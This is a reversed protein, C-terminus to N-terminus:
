SRWPAPNYAKVSREGTRHPSHGLAPHTPAKTGVGHSRRGKAPTAATHFTAKMLRQAQHTTAPMTPPPPRTASMDHDTGAVTPHHSAPQSTATDKHTHRHGSFRGIRQRTTNTLLRGHGVTGSAAPPRTRASPSTVANSTVAAPSAAAHSTPHSSPRVRPSCCVLVVRLPPRRARAPALAADAPIILGRTTSGTSAAKSTGSSSVSESRHM